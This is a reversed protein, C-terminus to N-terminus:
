SNLTSAGKDIIRTKGFNWTIANGYKHSIKCINSNETFDPLCLVLVKLKTWFGVFEWTTQVGTSGVGLLGLRGYTGKGVRSLFFQKLTTMLQACIVYAVFAHRQFFNAM